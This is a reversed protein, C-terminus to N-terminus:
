HDTVGGDSSRGVLDVLVDQLAPRWEPQAIGFEQYLRDCNLVSSAPRKAPTPYEASTLPRLQPTKQILGLDHADAFIQQAFEFWSCSPSGSYHYLGSADAKTALQWLTAAIDAAATPGGLQDAVIGLEGRERGLRLMTKVFNNGYRSFVWSTRLILSNIPQQRLAQEGALKSAGYVNGPQCPEDETYPTTADGPFVYDTSLHIVRAGVQRAAAALNAVGQQNIAFAQEMDSEAHDVATYAAANIILQPSLDGVQRNVQDACRIDLESSTPALCQIGGPLQALLAQGIQGSGGTLLVRM